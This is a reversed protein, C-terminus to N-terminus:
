WGLDIPIIEQTDEDVAINDGHMDSLQPLTECLAARLIWYSVGAGRYTSFSSLLKPVYEMAAVTRGDLKHLHYRPLHIGKPLKTFKIDCLQKFEGENTQGGRGYKHEVKYVVNEDVHLYAARYCGDGLRVWGEPAREEWRHHKHMLAYWDRIFEASTENGLM